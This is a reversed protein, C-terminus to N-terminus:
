ATMQTGPLGRVPLLAVALPDLVVPRHAAHRTATKGLAVTFRSPIGLRHHGLMCSLLVFTTNFPMPRNTTHVNMIRRVLRAARNSPCTAGATRGTRGGMRERCMTHVCYRDWTVRRDGMEGREKHWQRVGRGGKGQDDGRQGSGRRLLRLFCLLALLLLGRWYRREATPSLRSPGVFAM